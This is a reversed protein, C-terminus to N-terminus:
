QLFLSHNAAGDYLGNAAHIGRAIERYFWEAKAELQQQYRRVMNNFWFMVTLPKLLEYSIGLVGMYRDIVAQEWPELKGSFFREFYLQLIGKETKIRSTYILLYLIDLLPLSNRASLDWDIVGTIGRDHKNVLFNEIKCDGHSWVSKLRKGQVGAWLGSEIREILEQDQATCFRKLRRVDKAFLFDFNKRNIVIERATQAHFDTMYGAISVTVDVLDKVPTDIAIGPMRTELYCRYGEISLCAAMQPVKAAISTEALRKIISSNIRTRVKSIFDLPIRGVRDPLLVVISAPKGVIFRTLRGSGLREEIKNILSDAV